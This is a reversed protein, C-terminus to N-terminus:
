SATVFSHFESSFSVAGPMTSDFNCTKFETLPKTKLNPCVLVKDAALKNLDKSSYVQLRGNENNKINNPCVRENQEVRRKESFALAADVSRM